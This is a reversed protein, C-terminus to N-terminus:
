SASYLCLARYAVQAVEVARASADPTGFAGIIVVKAKDQQTPLLQTCPTVCASCLGRMAIVLAIEPIVMTPPMSWSPPPIMGPVTGCHSAADATPSDAMLREPPVMTVALISSM